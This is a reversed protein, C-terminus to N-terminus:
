CEVGMQALAPRSMGSASLAAAAPLAAAAVHAAVRADGAVRCLGPRLQSGCGRSSRSVAAFALPFLRGQQSGAGRLTKELARDLLLALAAVFVHARVREDTHHNSPVSNSCAKSILSAASSRM